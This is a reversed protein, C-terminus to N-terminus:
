FNLQWVAFNLAAAFTVWLIYPIFLYGAAKEIKFFKVTVVLILAWLVLIEIFALGPNKLGFFIISWLANFGLHVGYLWFAMKAGAMNRKRWVLFAALGMLTYLTLWAPAFLWNPPAFSPKELFVYWSQISSTTFFSGIVGAMQAILVSVVAGLIISIKNPMIKRLEAM